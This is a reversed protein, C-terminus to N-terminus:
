ALWVKKSSWNDGLNRVLKHLKGIDDHLETPFPGSGVRTTYAKFIGIVENIKNPAIGLGTCAGARNNYLLNCFSINWFRYGTIIRSSRGCYNKEM